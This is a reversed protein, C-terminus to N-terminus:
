VIGFSASASGSIVATTRALTRSGVGVLVKQGYKPYCGGTKPLGVIPEEPTLDYRSSHSHRRM